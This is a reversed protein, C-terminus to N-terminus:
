GLVFSSTRSCLHVKLSGGEGRREASSGAGSMYGVAGGNGSIYKEKHGGLWEKYKTKLLFGEGPLNFRYSRICGM